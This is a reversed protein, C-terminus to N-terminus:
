LGLVRKGCDLGLGFGACVEEMDNVYTWAQSPKKGVTCTFCQVGFAGPESGDGVSGSAGGFGLGLTGLGERWRESPSRTSAGGSGSSGTPQRPTKIGEINVSTVGFEGVGGAGAGAGGTSGVIRAPLLGNTSDSSAAYEGQEDSPSMAVKEEAAMALPVANPTFAPPSAPTSTSTSAEPSIPVQLSTTALTTTVQNVDDSLSGDM